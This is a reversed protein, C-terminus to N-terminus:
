DLPDSSKIKLALTKDFIEDEKPVYSADTLRPVDLKKFGGNEFQKAIKRIQDPSAQNGLNNIKMEKLFDGNSNFTAFNKNIKEDISKFALMVKEQDQPQFMGVIGSTASAMIESAELKSKAIGVSSRFSLEYRKVFNEGDKMDELTVAMARAYGAFEESLKRANESEFRRNDAEAWLLDLARKKDRAASDKGADLLKKYEIELEDAENSIATMQRLKLEAIDAQNQSNSILNMRGADVNKSQDKMGKLMQVLRSLSLELWEIDYKKTQNNEARQLRLAIGNNVLNVFKKYNKIVFFAITMVALLMGLTTIFKILFGSSLYLIYAILAAGVTFVVTGVKRKVEPNDMTTTIEDALQLLPFQQKLEASLFNNGTGTNSRLNEM